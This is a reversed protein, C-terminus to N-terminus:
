GGPKEGLNRALTGAAARAAVRRPELMVIMGKPNLAELIALPVRTTKGAGPPAQVVVAPHRRLAEVIAPLVADIPLPDLRPPVTERTESIWRRLFLAGRVSIGFLPSCISAWTETFSMASM